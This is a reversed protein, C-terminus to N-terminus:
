CWFSLWEKYVIDYVYMHIYLGKSGITEIYGTLALM